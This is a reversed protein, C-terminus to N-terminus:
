LLVGAGSVKQPFHLQRAEQGLGASGKGISFPHRHLIENAESVVKDIGM